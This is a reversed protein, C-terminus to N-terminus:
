NRNFYSRNHGYFNKVDPLYKNKITNINNANELRNM